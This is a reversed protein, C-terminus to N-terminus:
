MWLCSLWCSPYPPHKWSIIFDWVSWTSGSSSSLRRLWTWNQAVGYVAAWWAGRDRLNELCSCQLPNGNGEGICAHMSLWKLQTQSQAVGHVAAWWAGWDVPNELCSYQLTNANGEGVSWTPSGCVPFCNYWLPEWVPTLTRLGGNPEGAQPGPMPLLLGWLMQSQLSTPRSSPTSVWELVRTQLIGHVSSGPAMTWPTVFLQVHSFHSLVCTHICAHMCPKLAATGCSQPFCLSCERLICM